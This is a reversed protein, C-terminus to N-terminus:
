RAQMPRVQILTGALMKAFTTSAIKKAMGGLVCWWLRGCICLAVFYNCKKIGGAYSSAPHPIQRGTKSCRGKRGPNSSVRQSFRPLRTQRQGAKSLGRIDQYAYQRVSCGGVLPVLLRLGYM